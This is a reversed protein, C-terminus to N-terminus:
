FDPAREMIANLQPQLPPIASRVTAKGAMCDSVVPEIAKYLEGGDGFPHYKSKDVPRSYKVSESIIEALREYTTLLENNTVDIKKWDDSIWLAAAPVVM